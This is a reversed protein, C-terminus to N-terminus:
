ARLATYLAVSFAFWEAVANLFANAADHLPVLLFVAPQALCAALVLAFAADADM